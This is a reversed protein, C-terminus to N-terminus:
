EATEAELPPLDTNKILWAALRDAPEVPMSPEAAAPGGGDRDAGVAAVPVIASALIKLLDLDQAQQFASFAGLRRRPEEEPLAGVSLRQGLTAGAEPDHVFRAATDPVLAVIAPGAAAAARRVVSSETDQAVFVGPTVLRALPAPPSPGWVVLVIKVAGDFFEALGAAHLRDGEVEVVLPPAMAREARNWRSFPFAELFGEHEAARYSGSRALEV